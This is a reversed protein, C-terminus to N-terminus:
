GSVAPIAGGIQSVTEFNMYWDNGMTDGSYVLKIVRYIGDKDLERITTTM